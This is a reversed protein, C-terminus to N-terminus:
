PRQAPLQFVGPEKKNAVLPQGSWTVEAAQPAPTIQLKFPPRLELSLEGSAGTLNTRQGGESSLEVSSAKSLNLQLLGPGLASSTAGAESNLAKLGVGNKAQQLPKLEPYVSLLTISGVAGPKSATQLPQAPVPQLLVRQNLNLGYILGLTIVGYLVSGQWSSFVDISLPNFGQLLGGNSSHEITAPRRPNAAPLAASLSGDPMGLHQEIMPLMAKLYAGEPLRDRWGRELAELVPTSIRTELAMQRLNLGRAEREQRLRQGAELLPDVAPSSDQAADSSQDRRRLWPIPIAFRPMLAQITHHGM